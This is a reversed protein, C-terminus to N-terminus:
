DLKREIVDYWGKVGNSVEESDLLLESIDKDRETGFLGHVWKGWADRYKIRGEDTSLFELKVMEELKDLNRVAQRNGSSESVVKLWPIIGTFYILQDTFQGASKEFTKDDASFIAHTGM